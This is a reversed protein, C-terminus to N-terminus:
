GHGVESGLRAADVLFRTEPLCPASSRAGSALADWAAPPLCSLKGAASVVARRSISDGGNRRVAHGISAYVRAASHIGFRCRAPLDSIGPAARAYLHDAEDLLRLVVSGLRDSFVPEALWREVDIDADALWELPLYVRGLTADEGVDRAINSLQMAVGLDCARALTEESRGGMLVSMMAGVAAAVRASYARVDGLSEYRRGEADWLMGELLADPLARPVDAARVVVAFARDVPSDQPRGRYADALRERLRELADPPRTALDIADDAERCFAYLCTAGDAIPAPLLKSALHFSRSGGRLKARCAELDRASLEHLDPAARISGMSM